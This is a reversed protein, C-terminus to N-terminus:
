EELGESWAEYENIEESLIAIKKRTAEIADKGVLLHLPPSPLSAVKYFAEVSRRTDKWVVFDDLRGHRQATTPLSPNAAYAPHEPPWTLRPGM